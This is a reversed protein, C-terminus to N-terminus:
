APQDVVVVWMSQVLQVLSPFHINELLLLLLLLKPSSLSCLACNACVGHRLLLRNLHRYLTSFLSPVLLFFAFFFFSFMVSESEEKERKQQSYTIKSLSKSFPSYLAYFLPLATQGLWYCWCGCSLHHHPPVSSTPRLLLQSLSLTKSSSSLLFCSVLPNLFIFTTRWGTRLLLFVHALSGM